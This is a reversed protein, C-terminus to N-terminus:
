WKCRRKKRQTNEAPFGNRTLHLTGPSQEDPAQQLESTVVELAAHESLDTTGTLLFVATFQHLAEHARSCAPHKSTRQDIKVSLPQFRAPSGTLLAESM